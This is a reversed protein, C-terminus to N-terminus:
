VNRIGGSVAYLLNFSKKRFSLVKIDFDNNIDFKAQIIRTKSCQIRILVYECSIYSNILWASCFLIVLFSYRNLPIEAISLSVSIKENILYIILKVFSM